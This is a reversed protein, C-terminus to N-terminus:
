SQTTHTERIWHQIVSTSLAPSYELKKLTYLEEADSQFAKMSYLLNRAMEEYDGSCYYRMLHAKKEEPIFHLKSEAGGWPIADYGSLLLSVHTDYMTRLTSNLKFYDKRRLYKVTMWAFLWYTKELRNIDCQWLTGGTQYELLRMVSGARDFIVDAEKTDAYHIKCFFHDAKAANILVVDFQWISGQRLLLYSRSIIADNNFGEPWCTLVQDSFSEVYRTIEEAAQHFASEEVLLIMDVDSFEDCLGHAESGFNWAGLIANNSKIQEIFRLKMKSLISNM